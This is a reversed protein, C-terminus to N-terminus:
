VWFTFKMSCSKLIAVDNDVGRLRPPSKAAISNKVRFYKISLLMKGVIVLLALASIMLCEISRSNVNASIAM